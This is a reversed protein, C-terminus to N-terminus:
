SEVAEHSDRISFRVTNRGPIFDTTNVLSVLGARVIFSIVTQPNELRMKNGQSDQSRKRSNTGAAVALVIGKSLERDLHYIVLVLGHASRGRIEVLQRRRASNIPACAPSVAGPDGDKACLISPNDLTVILNVDAEDCPMLENGALCIVFGHRQFRPVIGDDGKADPGPKGQSVSPNMPSALRVRM